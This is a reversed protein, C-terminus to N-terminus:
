NSSIKAPLDTGTIAYTNCAKLAYTKSTPLTSGKTLDTITGPLAVTRDVFNWLTARSRDGSHWLVGNDDEQLFRRQMHTYNTNYDALAQRHAATWLTDIRQNNIFLPIGPDTMHALVYYLVHAESARKPSVDQGTPVTTYGTGLGVKYCAFLNEINYSKPCGHQVQGFPGFSEILFKVGGDQLEKFAQLIEKWQTQPTVNAYSVPMYGLNYFSDFLYGDLGTEAKIKKLSDVWYRRAGEQKFSWISFANTYAGGYKIRTCEMRVYWPQTEPKYWHNMPSSLAQGNNTWAYIQIGAGRCDDVFKTLMQPGGLKPAIEYEHGCCMNWKNEPHPSNETAASKNMNDIFLGKAGIATAAPLLDKRYSDITFNDWFNHSVRPVPLEERLGYETRARDHVDQITWTWINKQDTESKPQTNLLIAKAPTSFELAQDFIYKDFTKLERKGPEHQQISRILDVRAFVGALTKNGRYQFDFAQHSAWRPLNHTMCKNSKSNGDEWHILGETSWATDKELVAVPASCSSQSVVTAGTVDGDLEWSAKDLIYFLSVDKSSYVYHYAFGNFEVGGFADRAPEIVLELSGDGGANPGDWDETDHIPDFSHDRMLKVDLREFVARTRIRICDASTDIAELKLEALGVGTFSQTFPHLPLRGSRVVTNGIQIQGLGIFRGAHTLVEFSCNGLAVTKKDM